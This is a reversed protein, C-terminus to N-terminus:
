HSDRTVNILTRQLRKVCAIERDITVKSKMEGALSAMTSANFAAAAAAPADEDSDSVVVDVSSSSAAPASSSSSSSSSLSSMATVNDDKNEDRAGDNM